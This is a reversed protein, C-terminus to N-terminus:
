IHKLTLSRIQHLNRFIQFMNCSEPLDAAGRKEWKDIEGWRWQSSPLLTTAICQIEQGTEM